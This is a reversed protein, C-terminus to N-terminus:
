GGGFLLAVRSRTANTSHGGVSCEWWGPATKRRVHVVAGPPVPQGAATKAPQTFRRVQGAAVPLTPSSQQAPKPTPTPPLPWFSTPDTTPMPLRGM